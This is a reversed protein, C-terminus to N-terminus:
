IIREITFYCISKLKNQHIYFVKIKTFCVFKGRDGGM